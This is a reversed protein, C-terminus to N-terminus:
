GLSTLVVTGHLLLPLPTSEVPATPSGCHAAGLSAASIWVSLWAVRHRSLSRQSTAIGYQVGPAPNHRWGGSLGCAPEDRGVHNSSCLLHLLAPWGRAQPTASILRSTNPSTSCRTRRAITRSPSVAYPTVMRRSISRTVPRSTAM